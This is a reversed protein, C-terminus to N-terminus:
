TNARIVDGVSEDHGVYSEYLGLADRMSAQNTKVGKEFGENFSVHRIFEVYKDFLPRLEKPIKFSRTVENTAGVSMKAEVLDNATNIYPNYMTM